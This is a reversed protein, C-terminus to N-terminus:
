EDVFWLSLAGRCEVCRLASGLRETHEVAFGERQEVGFVPLARWLFTFAQERDLYAAPSFTTADTGQTIGQEVAWGVAQYCPDEPGVDTFDAQAGEPSGAALWLSRVFDGRNIQAEGLFYGAKTTYMIEHEVMYSVYPHSWHDQPVDQLDTVSTGGTVLVGALLYAVIQQILM